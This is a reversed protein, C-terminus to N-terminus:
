PQEWKQAWWGAHPMDSNLVAQKVAELAVFNGHIDSILAIRM